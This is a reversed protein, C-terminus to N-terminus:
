IASRGYPWCEPGRGAAHYGASSMRERPPLGSIRCPPGRRPELHLGGLLAGGVGRRRRRSPAAPADSTPDCRWELVNREIVLCPLLEPVKAKVPGSPGAAPHRRAIRRPEAGRAARRSGPPRLRARATELAQDIRSM